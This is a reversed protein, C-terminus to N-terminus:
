GSNVCHEGSNDGTVPGNLLEIHFIGEEVVSESLCDKAALGRTKCVRSVMVQDIAQALTVGRIVFVRFFTM